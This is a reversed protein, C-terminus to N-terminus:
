RSGRVNFDYAELTISSIEKLNNGGSAPGAPLQRKSEPPQLSLRSNTPEYNLSMTSPYYANENDVNVTAEGAEVSFSKNQELKMGREIVNSVM